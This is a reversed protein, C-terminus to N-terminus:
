EYFGKFENWMLLPQDKGMQAILQAPKHEVIAMAYKFGRQYDDGLDAQVLLGHVFSFDCKSVFDREGLVVDPMWRPNSYVSDVMFASATKSIVDYASQNVLHIFVSAPDIRNQTRGYVVANQGIM